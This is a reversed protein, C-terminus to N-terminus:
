ELKSSVQELEDCKEYYEKVQELRIFLGPRKSRPIWQGKDDYSKCNPLKKILEEKAKIEEQLKAVNLATSTTKLFAERMEDPLRCSHQSIMLPLYM